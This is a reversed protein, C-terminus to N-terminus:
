GDTQNVEKETAIAITQLEGILESWLSIYQAENPTLETIDESWSDLRERLLRLLEGDGAAAILKHTFSSSWRGGLAEIIGRLAQVEGEELSLSEEADKLATQLAEIARSKDEGRSVEVLAKAFTRILEKRDM